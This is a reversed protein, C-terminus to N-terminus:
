GSPQLVFDVGSRSSGPEVTVPTAEHRTSKGDFWRARYGPLEASIVYTGPDLLLTYEGSRDTRVVIFRGHPAEIPEARVVAEVLPTGDPDVVTGAIGAPQPVPTATAFPATPIVTPPEPSATPEAGPLRTGGALAAAAPPEEAIMATTSKTVATPAVTIGRGTYAVSSESTASKPSLGRHEDRLVPRERGENGTGSVDSDAQESEVTEASAIGATDAPTDPARRQVLAWVGVLLAGAAIAAVLGASGSLPASQATPTPALAERAMRGIEVNMAEREAPAPAFAPEERLSLAAAVLGDLEPRLDAYAALADEPTKGVEIQSLADQLADAMQENM